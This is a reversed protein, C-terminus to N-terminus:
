ERRETETTEELARQATEVRLLRREVGSEITELRRRVLREFSALRRDLEDVSPSGM